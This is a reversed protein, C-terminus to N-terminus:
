KRILQCVMICASSEGPWRVEQGSSDIGCHEPAKTQETIFEVATDAWNWSEWLFPLPCLM